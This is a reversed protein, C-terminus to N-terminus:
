QPNLEYFRCLFFNRINKLILINEDNFFEIFRKDRSIKVYYHLATRAMSYARFLLLSTKNCNKLIDEIKYSKYKEVDINNLIGSNKYEYDPLAFIINILDDYHGYETDSIKLEGALASLEDMISFFLYVDEDYGMESKTIECFFNKNEM